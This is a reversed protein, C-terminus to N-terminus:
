GSDNTNRKVFGFRRGFRRCKSIIEDQMLKFSMAMVIMGFLLFLACMAAKGAKSETVTGKGPVLDGFGITTFTIFCFYAGDLVNWNEWQAFLLAGMAIYLALVALTAVIPVHRSDERESQLLLSSNFSAYHDLIFSKRRTTRFKASYWRDSLEQITRSVHTSLLLEGNEFLRIHICWSTFWGYLDFVHVDTSNWVHRLDLLHFFSAGFLDTCELLKARSSLRIM